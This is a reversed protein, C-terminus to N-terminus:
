GRPRRELEIGLRAMRRYLAQRSIGLGEAVRSVNGEEGALLRLLEAREEAAMPTLPEAPGPEGVGLGLDAVALESSTALLSARRIRNELERVNGPWPHALLAAEAAASMRLPEGREAAFTTLFHRALPLVDEPREVLPPVRVEVVDLRFYLDERFRGEAILKPLAANTASLVRVDVRQARSSGLRLLEGGSLVRLLKVQGALPLSDIEDLFLTGGDAAEFHGVRRGKLGTYAGAEAGFLEAEMLEAPIAGVNVRVFPAGRRRSNAQIIEAVREKGAGSPGTLLVPADSPAVQMALVLARHMAPSAYVLGRLDHERALAARSDALERRQREEAVAATRSRLLAQLTAVLKADDWPKQVYDAAGERVLEVATELSAWATLLFIPVGPDRERLRRFLEVGARGSTESPVFNMDQVVAGLVERAAIRLAEDPAAAVVHEIDHLDFLVSLARAVAPQDEVILVRLRDAM